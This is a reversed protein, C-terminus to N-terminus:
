APEKKSATTPAQTLGQEDLYETLGKEFLNSAQLDLEDPPEPSAQNAPPTDKILGAEIFQKICVKKFEEFDMGKARRIFVPKRSNTSEM